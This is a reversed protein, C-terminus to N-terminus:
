PKIGSRKESQNESYDYTKIMILDAFHEAWQDLDDVLRKDNLHETFKKDWSVFEQLIRHIDGSLSSKGLVRNCADRATEFLLTWKSLYTQYLDLFGKQELRSLARSTM